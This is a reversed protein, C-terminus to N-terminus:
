ELGPEKRYDPLRGDVLPTSAHNPSQPKHFECLTRQKARGLLGGILGDVSRLYLDQKSTRERLQRPALSLDQLEHEVMVECNRSSSLYHPTRQTRSASM